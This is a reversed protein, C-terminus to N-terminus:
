LKEELEKKYEKTLVVSSLKKIGVLRKDKFDDYLRQKDRKSITRKAQISLIHKEKFAVLDYISHSGAARTVKWGNSELYHKIARELRVGQEYNTMKEGFTM